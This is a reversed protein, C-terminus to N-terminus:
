LTPCSQLSQVCVHSKIEWQISSLSINMQIYNYPSALLGPPLSCAQWHLLRLLHSNSGQAPFIGQLLFHYDVGTNKGQLDWPFLLRTPQLGLPQLSNSVISHRLVCVCCMYTSVSYRVSDININIHIYILVYSHLFLMAHVALFVM